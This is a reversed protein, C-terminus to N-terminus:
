RRHLPNGCSRGGRSCRWSRHELAVPSSELVVLYVDRRETVREFAPRLKAWEDAFDATFPAHVVRIPVDLEEDDIREHDGRLDVITRVGYDWVAQLGARDLQRLSDARIIEGFRTEGGDVTRHGGLDRVNLCGQWQLNRDRTM